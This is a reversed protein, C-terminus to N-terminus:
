KCIGNDAFPQFKVAPNLHPCEEIFAAVFEREIRAKADVVTAEDVQYLAADHMPLLLAAIGLREVRLMARKLILSATGQIRQSLSWRRESGQLPGTPRVRYRFNGFKSGIRGDRTLTENISRKWPELEAYEEFFTAILAETESTMATDATILEAARGISMGYCFALFVLKAQDRRDTTGFVKRSLAAYLDGTNFDERLKRDGSDEALIGPEFQSFDPYLLAKGEDACLVARTSRSLYQLAPTRALPRGTVTGVVTFPPHVRDTRRASLHLLIAKDHTAARFHKIENALAHEEPLLDLAADLRARIVRALAPRRLVEDERLRNDYGLASVLQASDTPRLVRWNMRLAAASRTVAHGLDGLRRNVELRDFRIGHQQTKLLLAGVPQEVEDFRRLEGLTQLQERTRTWLEKLGRLVQDMLLLLDDSSLDTKGGHRFILNQLQMASSAYQTQRRLLSWITCADITQGSSPAGRILRAAETVDVANAPVLLAHAEFYPVLTPLEYSVLAGESDSLSSLPVESAGRDGSAIFLRVSPTQDYPTHIYALYRTTDTSM